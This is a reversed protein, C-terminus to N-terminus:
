KENLVLFSEALILGEARIYMCVCTYIYIYVYTYMHM